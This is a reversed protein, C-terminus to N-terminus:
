KLFFFFFLFGRAPWALRGLVWSGAPGALRGCRGAGARGCARVRERDTARDGRGRERLSASAGGREKGERVARRVPARASRARCRSRRPIAIGRQGRTWTWTRYTGRARRERVGGFVRALFAGCSVGEEKPDRRRRRPEGGSGGGTLMGRAELSCWRFGRNTGRRGSM